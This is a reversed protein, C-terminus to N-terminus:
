SADIVGIDLQGEDLGACSTARRLAPHNQFVSRTLALYHESGRMILTGAGKGDGSWQFSGVVDGDHETLIAKTAYGTDSYTEVSHFYM